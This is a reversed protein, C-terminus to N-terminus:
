KRRTFVTKNTKMDPFVIANCYRSKSKANKYIVVNRNVWVIDIDYAGKRDTTVHIRYPSKKPKGDTFAFIFISADNVLDKENTKSISVKKGNVSLDTWYSM